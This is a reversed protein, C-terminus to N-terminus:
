DSGSGPRQIPFESNTWRTSAWGFYSDQGDDFINKLCESTKFAELLEEASWDFPEPREMNRDTCWHERLAPWLGAERKPPIGHMLNLIQFSTWQKKGILTELTALLVYNPAEYLVKYPRPFREPGTLLLQDDTIVLDLVGSPAEPHIWKRKFYAMGANGPILPMQQWAFELPWTAAKIDEGGSATVLAFVLVGVRGALARRVRKDAREGDPM